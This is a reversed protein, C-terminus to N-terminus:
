GDRRQSVSVGVRSWMKKRGITESNKKSRKLKSYVFVVLEWWAAATVLDVLGVECFGWLEGVWVAVLVSLQVCAKPDIAKSHACRVCRGRCLKLKIGVLRLEIWWITIGCWPLRPGVEEAAEEHGCDEVV